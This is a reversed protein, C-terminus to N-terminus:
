RLRRISQRTTLRRNRPKTRFSNGAGNAAWGYYRPSPFAIGLREAERAVVAWGVGLFQAARARSMPERAFAALEAPDLRKVRGRGAGERRGGWGNVALM